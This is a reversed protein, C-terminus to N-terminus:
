KMPADTSAHHLFVKAILQLRWNAILQADAADLPLNDHMVQSRGDATTVLLFGKPSDCCLSCAIMM